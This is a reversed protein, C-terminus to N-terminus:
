PNHYKCLYMNNDYSLIELSGKFLIVESEYTKLLECTDVDFCLSNSPLIIKLLRRQSECKLGKSYPLYEVFRKAVEISKSTSMLDRIPYHNGVVLKTTPKFQLDGDGRYLINENTSPTLLKLLGDYIREVVEKPVESMGMVMTHPSIDDRFLERLQRRVLFEAFWDTYAEIPSMSLQIKILEELTCEDEEETQVVSMNQQSTTCTNEKQGQLIINKPISFLEQRKISLQINSEIINKQRQILSDNGM